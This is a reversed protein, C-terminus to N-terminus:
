EWGDTINGSQLEKDLQSVKHSNCCLASSSDVNHLQVNIPVPPGSNGLLIGVVMTSLPNRLFTALSGAKVSSGISFAIPDMDSKRHRVIVSKCSSALLEGIAGSWNWCEAQQELCSQAKTDITSGTDKSFM